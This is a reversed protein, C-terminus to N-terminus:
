FLNWSIRATVLWRNQDATLITLPHGATINATVGKSWQSDMGIGISRAEQRKVGPTHTAGIDFFMM